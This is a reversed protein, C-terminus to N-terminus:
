EKSAYDVFNLFHGANFNVRWLDRTNGGTGYDAPWATVAFGARRFVGMSRPMHFGSTVLLFREGPRPKVIDRTFIANEYTNRSRDELVLREPAVGLALFFRRAIEAESVDHGGPSGNGGTFILRAAPFRRALAVGETMRSGFDGLVLADRAQSLSEDMGGGLVIIGDPAPMDAPPRPFRNELPQMLIASAPGFACFAYLATTAILVGRAARAYRTALGIVGIVLAFGVLNSPEAFFWFIKSVSYFM